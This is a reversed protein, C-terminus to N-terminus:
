MFGFGLKGGIGLGGTGGNFTAGTSQGGQHNGDPNGHGKGHRGHGKGHGNQPPHEIVQTHPDVFISFSHPHLKERGPEGPIFLNVHFEGSRLFRTDQALIVDVETASANHLIVDVKQREPQGSLDNTTTYELKALVDQGQPVGQLPNATAQLKLVVTDKPLLFFGLHRAAPSPASPVWRDELAEM